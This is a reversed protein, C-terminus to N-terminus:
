SRAAAPTAALRYSRAAWLAYLPAGIGAAVIFPGLGGLWTLPAILYLVDEIEFGGVAPQAVADRGRRRLIAGRFWFIAVFAIGAALGCLPAAIGLPGGRLGVGIATFLALRVLLDSARDYAAGWETCKGSMRALEGDAHDLVASVVWVCAGLDILAPTGSAYLAAATLGVLTGFTTVHNPHVWTDRLPTVLWRALRSDWPKTDAAEL